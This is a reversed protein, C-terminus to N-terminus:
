KKFLLIYNFRLLIYMCFQFILTLFLELFIGFYEKKILKKWFIVLHFLFLNYSSNQQPSLGVTAEKAKDNTGTAM